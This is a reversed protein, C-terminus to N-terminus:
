AFIDTSVNYTLEKDMQLSRIASVDGSQANVTFLKQAAEDGVVEYSWQNDPEQLM